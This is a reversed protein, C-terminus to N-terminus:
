EIRGRTKNVKLIEYKYYRLLIVNELKQLKQNLEIRFSRFPKFIKNCIWLSAIGMGVGGLFYYWLRILNYLSYKFFYHPLLEDGSGWEGM